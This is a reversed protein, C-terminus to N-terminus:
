PSHHTPQSPHYHSPNTTLPQNHLSPSHNISRLHPKNKKPCHWFSCVGSVAIISGEGFGRLRGM